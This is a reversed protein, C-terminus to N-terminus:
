QGMLFALHSTCEAVGAEIGLQEYLALTQQWLTMAEETKGSKEMFLGYGRLTNALDLPPTEQNACYITLAEEYHRQASELNGEDLLIDAVHRITHALTLPADQKRYLEVALQYHKLAAGINKGDREIQGLGEHAKATHLRDGSRSSLSLAQRFCDRADNPRQERRAEYGSAIWEAPTAPDM